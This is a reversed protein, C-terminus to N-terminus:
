ATALQKAAAEMAKVSDKVDVDALYRLMTELSKWGGWQRVTDVNVGAKLMTTAFFRRFGHLDGLTMKLKGQDTKLCKLAFNEKVRGGKGGSFVYVGVPQAKLVAEVKPHMPVTRDARGKPKWDERMRIHIIKQTFDLDQWRLHILEGIRMGTWALTIVIPKLWDRVGTELKAVEETTYCRRKPKVPEPTEWDLAPNIKFYGRSARSGWKLANKIVLADNYATKVDCEEKKTRFPTYAELVALSIDSIALIGKSGLFRGFAELSGRYRVITRPAKGQQQKYDLYLQRFATWTVPADSTKVERVVRPADLLKVATEAEAKTKVGLTLRQRKVGDNFAAYWFGTWKHFFVRYRKGERGLIYFSRPSSM